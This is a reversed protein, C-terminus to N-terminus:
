CGVLNPGVFFLRKLRARTFKNLHMVGQDTIKQITSSLKYIKVQPKVVRRRRAVAVKANVLRMIEVRLKAVEAEAADLQLALAANDQSLEDIQLVLDHILDQHHRYDITTM